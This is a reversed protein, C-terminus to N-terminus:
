QPNQPRTGQLRIFEFYDIYGDSNLDGRNLVRDVMDAFQEETASHETGTKHHEFGHYMELGDLKKNGDYDHLTFYYFQTDEDSLTDVNIDTEDKLHEKIHDRDHTVETENLAPLASEHEEHARVFSLLALSFM